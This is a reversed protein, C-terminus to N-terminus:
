TKWKCLRIVFRSGKEMPLFNLDGGMAQAMKRSMALGLGNGNAHTTFFPKFLHVQQEASIGGGLDDVHIEWYNSASPHISMQLPSECGSQKQARWGNQVLNLLIQQLGNPDAQATCMLTAHLEVLQGQDRMRKQFEQLFPILELDQLDAQWPRAFKLFNQVIDNLRMSEKLIMDIFRENGKEEDQLLQAAGYISELPNKIEHALGAAMLGLDGLHKEQARAESIRRLHLHDALIQCIGELLQATDNWDESVYRGEKAVLLLERGEDSHASVIIDAGLRRLLRWQRLMGPRKQSVEMGAQRIADLVERRSIAKGESMVDGLSRLAERPIVDGVVVMDEGQTLVLSAQPYGFRNRIEKLTLESLQLSNPTGTALASTRLLLDRGGHQSPFLRQRLNLFSQYVAPFVSSLVLAILIAAVWSREFWPSLAEMTLLGILAIAFIAVGLLFRLLIGKLLSRRGLYNFRFIAWYFVASYLAISLDALPYLPDKLISYFELSGFGFGLSSAWFLVRSPYPLALHEPPKKWLLVIGWIMFLSYNLTYLWYLPTPVNYWGYKSLSQGEALYGQAYLVVHMAASLVAIAIPGRFRWLRRGSLQIALVFLTPYIFTAGFFSVTPWWTAHELWLYPLGGNKVLKGYQWLAMTAALAIFSWTAQRRPAALAMFMLGATVVVSIYSFLLHVPILPVVSDM